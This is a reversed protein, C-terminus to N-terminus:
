KRQKESASSQPTEKAISSVAEFLVLEESTFSCNDFSASLLEINLNAKCACEMCEAQAKNIELSDHHVRKRVLKTLLNQPM